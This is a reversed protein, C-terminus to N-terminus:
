LTPDLRPRSHLRGRTHRRREDNSFERLTQHLLRHFINKLEGASTEPQLLDVYFKDASNALDPQKFAANPFHGIGQLKQFIARSAPGSDGRCCMWLVAYQPTYIWRYNKKHEDVMAKAGAMVQEKLQTALDGDEVKLIEAATKTLCSGWNSLLRDHLPKDVWKLRDPLDLIGWARPWGAATDSLLWDTAKDYVVKKFEVEATM